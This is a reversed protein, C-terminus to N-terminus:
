IVLVQNTDYNKSLEEIEAIVKGPNISINFTLKMVSNDDKDVQIREIKDIKKILSQAM